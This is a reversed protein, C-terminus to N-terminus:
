SRAYAAIEKELFFKRIWGLIGPKSLSYHNWTGHTERTVLGAELLVKLHYSDSLAKAVSALLTAEQDPLMKLDGRRIRPTETYCHEM